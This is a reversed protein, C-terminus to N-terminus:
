TEPEINANHHFVNDPDWTAKIPALRAYKPGFSVQVQDTDDDALFNIYGGTDTAQPRLEDWLDRVWARAAALLDADPANPHHQLGM